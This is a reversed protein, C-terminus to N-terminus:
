ALVTRRKWWIILGFIIILEPIVFSSAMIKAYTEPKIPDFKPERMSRPSIVVGGEAGAAWGIARLVFDRHAYVNFNANLVWDSDGFVVLRSVKPADKDAGEIKKEYAMAMSVPGVKDNPEKIAGPEDADFVLALSTEGWATPSSRALETYTVGNESKQQTTVTSALNFITINDEPSFNATIPHAGYDRVMPQAGLAPAAFLRQVQDIVVDNGIDIGFKAAIARADEPARPDTFLLLHGGGEVYKIIMEREEPLLEKKPALLILASADDPVAGKQGLVIGEITLHENKIADSLKKVGTPLVGELEAEDHGQVYYIKKADGRTMKIIGNTITDESGENVRSVQSGEGEGYELYVVDGPKMGYKDVLHPKKRPDVFETTIKSPEEFQYLKLLQDVSDEDQMGGVKFAVIKLPKKLGKIVDVSERSLSFVGNETLDWRHDHRTAMWNVVVLLGVFVATYSVANAGFRVTRGKLVASAEGVNQMGITIFWISLLLLGGLLHVTMVAEILSSFGWGVFLGGLVGFLLVVVGLVSFFRLWRNEM